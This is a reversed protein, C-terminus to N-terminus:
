GYAIFGLVEILLLYFIFLMESLLLLFLQQVLQALVCGVRGMRQVTTGTEDVGSTNTTGGSHHTLSLKLRVNKLLGV